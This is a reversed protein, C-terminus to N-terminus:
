TDGGSRKLVVSLAEGVRCCTLGHAFCGWFLLCLKVIYMDSAKM